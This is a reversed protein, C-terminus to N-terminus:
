GEWTSSAVLGKPLRLTRLARAALATWRTFVKGDPAAVAINLLERGYPARFVAIYVRIAMGKKISFPAILERGAEYAMYDFGSAPASPALRIDAHIAAIGNGIDQRVPRSVTLDPLRRLAAVVKIPSKRRTLFGGDPDTPYMGKTVYFVAGPLAPPHVVIVGPTDQSRWGSTPWTLRLGPIPSIASRFANSPAPTTSPVPSGANSAATKPQGSSSCGAVVAALLVFSAAVVRRRHM